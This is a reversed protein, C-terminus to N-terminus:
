SWDIVIVREILKDEYGKTEVYEIKCDIYEKKLIDMFDMIFLTMTIPNQLESLSGIQKNPKDVRFVYKTKGAEAERKIDMWIVQLLTDFTQYRVFEKGGKLSQLVERSKVLTRPEHQNYM